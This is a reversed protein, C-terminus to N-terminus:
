VLLLRGRGTALRKAALQFGQERLNAALSPRREFALRRDHQAPDLPARTVIRGSDAATRDVVESQYRPNELLTRGGGTVGRRADDQGSCARGDWQM